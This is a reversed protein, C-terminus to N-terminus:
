VLFPVFTLCNLACFFPCAASEAAGMEGGMGLGDRDSGSSFELESGPEFELLQFDGVEDALVRDHQNTDIRKQKKGSSPNKRKGM